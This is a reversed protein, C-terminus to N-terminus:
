HDELDEQTLADLQAKLELIRLGLRRQLDARDADTPLRSKLNEYAAITEEVAKQAGEKDEDYYTTGKSEQAYELEERAVSFMEAISDVEKNVNLPDKSPNAPASYYRLSSSSVLVLSRSPLLLPRHLHVQPTVRRLAVRTAQSAARYRASM